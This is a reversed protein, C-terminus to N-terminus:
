VERSTIDWLADHSIDDCILSCSIRSYINSGDYLLTSFQTRTYSFRKNQLHNMHADNKSMNQICAMDEREADLYVKRM